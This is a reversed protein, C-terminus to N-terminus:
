RTVTMLYLDQVFDLLQVKTMKNGVWFVGAHSFCVVRARSLASRQDFGMQLLLSKVYDIREADIKGVKKNVATDNRAWSRIAAELINGARAMISSQMLALLRAAPETDTADVLTIVDLTKQQYWADLMADLLARRDKFHWYFSGKTVKLATALPSIKVQDIGKGVLVEFAGQVWDEKSLRATTESM